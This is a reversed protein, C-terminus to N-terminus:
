FEPGPPLLMALVESPPIEKFDKAAVWLCEEGIVQLDFGADLLTQLYDMHLIVDDPMAAYNIGDNDEPPVPMTIEAQITLSIPFTLRRILSIAVWNTRWVLTISEGTEYISSPDIPTTVMLQIRSVFEKKISERSKERM